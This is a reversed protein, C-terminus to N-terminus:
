SYDISSTPYAPKARHNTTVRVEIYLVENPAFGAYGVDEMNSGVAMEDIMWSSLSEIARERSAKRGHVRDL